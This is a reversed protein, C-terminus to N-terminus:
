GPNFVIDILDEASVNEIQGRELLFLTIKRRIKEGLEQDTVNDLASVDVATLDRAIELTFESLASLNENREVVRHELDMLTQAIRMNAYWFYIFLFFVVIVVLARKSQWMIDLANASIDLLISMWTVSSSVSMESNPEKTDFNPSHEITNPTATSPTPHCNDQVETTTAMTMAAPSDRGQQESKPPMPEEVKETVAMKTLLETPDGSLEKLEFSKASLEEETYSRKIGKGSPISNSRVREEGIAHSLRETESEIASTATSTNAVIKQLEKEIRQEHEHSDADDESENNKYKMHVYENCQDHMHRVIIEMQQSVAKMVSIMLSSRHSKSAKSKSAVGVYIDLKCHAEGDGKPRTDTVYLKYEVQFSQDLSLDHPLLTSHIVLYTMTHTINHTMILRQTELVVASKSGSLASGLVSKKGSISFKIGRVFPVGPRFNIWKDVEVDSDGLTSHIEHIFDSDNGYFLSFFENASIPFWETMIKKMDINSPVPFIDLVQVDSDIDEIEPGDERNKLHVASSLYGRAATEARRIAATVPSGNDQSHLDDDVQDTILLNEDALVFEEEAATITGESSTTHRGNTERDTEVLSAPSSISSSSSDKMRRTRGLSSLLPTQDVNSKTRGRHYDEQSQKPPSLTPSSSFSLRPIPFSNSRERLPSSSQEHDVTPLSALRQISDKPSKSPSLRKVVSGGLSNFQIGVDREFRRNMEVM